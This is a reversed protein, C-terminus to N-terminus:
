AAANIESYMRKAKGAAPEHRYGEGVLLEFLEFLKVSSREDYLQRRSGEIEIADFLNCRRQIFYLRYYDVDLVGALYRLSVLGNQNM